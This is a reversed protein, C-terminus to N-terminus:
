PNVVRGLKEWDQLSDITSQQGILKVWSFAFGASGGMEFFRKSNEHFELLSYADQRGSWRSKMVRAWATCAETARLNAIAWDKEKPTLRKVEIVTDAWNTINFSGAVDSKSMSGQTKRPHAVIHIVVEYKGAFQKCIGIFDAQKRYFDSDSTSNLALSMLNDIMFVRCGHRRYCYEFVELIKDQSVVDQDDYLWFSDKYWARIHPLVDPKIKVTERGDYHAVTVNEPGAAQLDIWYRFLRAPLEGSYACVKNDDDIAQLMVQGLFTSKGSGNVGTWVCVEGGRFGGKIEENMGPIHSKVVFDSGPDYEPIDALSIVGKMPTFYADQVCKAVVGKGHKVLVDNADKCDAPPSVIGCRTAGLRNVLERQAKQGPEDADTWIYYQNFKKVWEWCTDLVNLSQAGNPLSVANPIGAEWLSMCDIEGETIILPMDLSCLDMGFFIPKGGPEATFKKDRSRFKLYVLEGDEHFPFAIRGQNEGIKFLDLTEKSLGREAMYDIINQQPSKVNGQPKKYERKPKREYAESPELNFDQILKRANGEVRCKGRYCIFAGTDLNMSFSHKDKHQGGECYPCYEPQIEDGQKQWRGQFLKYAVDKPEM